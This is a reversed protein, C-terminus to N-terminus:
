QTKEQFGIDRKVCRNNVFLSDTVDMFTYLVM